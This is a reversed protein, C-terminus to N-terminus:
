RLSTKVPIKPVTVFGDGAENFPMNCEEYELSMNEIDIVNFIIYVTQSNLNTMGCFTLDWIILIGFKM